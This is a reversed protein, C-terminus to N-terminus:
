LTILEKANMCKVSQKAATQVQFQVIRYTGIMANKPGREQSDELMQETIGYSHMINWVESLSRAILCSKRLSVKKAIENKEAEMKEEHNSLNLYTPPFRCGRLWISKKVDEIKPRKYPEMSLMSEILMRSSHELYMPLTFSGQLIATKLEPVSEGRFPTVGILMFHLLVGLAWIDVM